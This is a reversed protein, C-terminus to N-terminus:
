PAVAGMDGNEIDETRLQIQQVGGFFFEQTRWQMCGGRKARAVPFYNLVVDYKKASFIVFLNIDGHIHYVANVPIDKVKFIDCPKV